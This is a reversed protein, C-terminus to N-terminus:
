PLPPVPMRTRLLYCGSRRLACFHSMAPCSCSRATRALWYDARGAAAAHATGSQPVQLAFQLGRHDALQAQIAEAGHGVVLTTTAPSLAAATRLVHEVMPEGAVSHLAKPLASKMRTGQGAALIVVHVDSM